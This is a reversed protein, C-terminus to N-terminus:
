SRKHSVDGEEGAFDAEIIDVLRYRVGFLRSLHDGALKVQTLLRRGLFPLNTLSIPLSARPAQISTGVPIPTPLGRRALIHVQMALAPEVQFSVLGPLTHLFADVPAARHEAAALLKRAGAPWLIYAASGSKDRYLRLISLGGGITRENRSVFRRRDFNELNLFDISLLNRATALLAPVRPSLVVDDELILMPESGGAVRRWLARHSLFCGLEAPSLPREWSRGLGATTAADITSAEVAPLRELAMGYREGQAEMFARRETARDLNIYVLDM